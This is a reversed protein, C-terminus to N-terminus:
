RKVGRAILANAILASFIALMVFALFVVVRPDGTFDPGFSVFFVSTLGLLATLGSYVTMVKRPWGLPTRFVGAIPFLLLVFVLAAVQAHDQKSVVYTVESLAAMLLVAGIWNSEVIQERSLALRGFRDLRLLLNFFPGTIWTLLVFVLWLIMLGAIRSVLYGGVLVGWRARPSLTSMWLVGRLIRAYVPNRAKLAEVIGQRAWESQPNLRLSEKFHPLAKAGKGEHLLAWGQNAHTAANEPDRALAAGITDGAEVGRRLKVLAMARLNACSANEADLQLGEEASHLAENWRKEDYHIAGLLFRYDANEPALRIAEEIATRSVDYHHRNYWVKALAYHAFAYDPALHIAEQAEKTAENLQKRQLLTLALLSHGYAHGPDQSLAQRLETEALDYRSQQYLLRGREITV